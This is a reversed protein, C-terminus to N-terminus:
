LLLDGNCCGEQSPFPGPTVLGGRWSLPPEAEGTLVNNICELIATKMGKPLHRLLKYQLGDTGPALYGLHNPLQGM